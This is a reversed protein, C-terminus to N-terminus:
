SFREPRALKFKEWTEWSQKEGQEETWMWFPTLFSRAHELELRFIYASLGCAQIYGSSEFEGLAAERNYELQRFEHNWLNNKLTM